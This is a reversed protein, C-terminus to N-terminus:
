IAESKLSNQCITGRFIVNNGTALKSRLGILRCAANIRLYSM